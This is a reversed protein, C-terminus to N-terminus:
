EKTALPFGTYGYPYGYNYPYSGPLYAAQEKADFKFSYTSPASITEFIDTWTKM